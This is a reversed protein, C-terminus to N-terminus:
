VTTKQLERLDSRLARLEARISEIETRLKEVEGASGVGTLSHFTKQVPEQVRERVVETALGSVTNVAREVAVQVVFYTQIASRMM